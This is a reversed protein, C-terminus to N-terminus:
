IAYKRGVKRTKNIELLLFFFHPKRRPAARALRSSIQISKEAPIIQIASRQKRGADRNSEPAACGQTVDISQTFFKEKEKM